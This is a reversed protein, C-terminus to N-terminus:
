RWARGAGFSDGGRLRPDVSLADPPNTQAVWHIGAQAPIVDPSAGLTNHLKLAM